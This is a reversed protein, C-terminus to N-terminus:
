AQTEGREEGGVPKSASILVSYKPATSTILVKKSEPTTSNESNTSKKSKPNEKRVEWTSPNKTEISKETLKERESNEQRLRVIKKFREM